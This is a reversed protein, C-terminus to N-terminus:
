KTAVLAVLSAVVGLVLLTHASVHLRRQSKGPAEGANGEIHAARRLLWFGLLALPLAFLAIGYAWVLSFPLYLLACILADIRYPWPVRSSM